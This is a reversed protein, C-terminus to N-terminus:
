LTRSARSPYGASSMWVPWLVAALALALSLGATRQTRPGANFALLLISCTSNTGNCLECADYRARREPDPTPQGDCGVCSTALGGCDGCVDPVLRGHPVAVCDLCRSHDGDCVSCEDYVLGCYNNGARPLDRWRHAGFHSCPVPGTGPSRGQVQRVPDATAPTAPLGSLDLCCPAGRKRGQLCPHYSEAPSCAMARGAADACADTGTEQCTYLPLCGSCTRNDGGCAGCWDVTVGSGTVGDCARCATNGGLCAGCRDRSSNPCNGLLAVTHKYGLTVRSVNRGVLNAVRTAALAGGVNECPVHVDGVQRGGL